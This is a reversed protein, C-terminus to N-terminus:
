GSTPPEVVQTPQQMIIDLAMACGSIVSFLNITLATIYAAAGYPFGGFRLLGDGTNRRLRTRRFGGIGSITSRQWDGQAAQPFLRGSSVTDARRVIRSRGALDM